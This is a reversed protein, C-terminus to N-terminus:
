SCCSVKLCIKRVNQVDLGLHSVRLKKTGFKKGAAIAAANSIVVFDMRVGSPHLSDIMSIAANNAISSLLRSDM